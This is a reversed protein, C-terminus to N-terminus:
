LSSIRSADVRNLIERLARTAQTRTTVAAAMTDQPPILSPPAALEDGDLLGDVDVLAM